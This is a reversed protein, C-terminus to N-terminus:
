WQGPCIRTFEGVRFGQFLQFDRLWRNPSKEQQPICGLFIVFSLPVNWGHICICRDGILLDKIQWSAM